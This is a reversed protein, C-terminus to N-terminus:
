SAEGRSVPPLGSAARHLMALSLADADARHLHPYDRLVAARIRGHEAMVAAYAAGRMRAAVALLSAETSDGLQFAPLMRAARFLMALWTADWGPADSLVLCGACEANLWSAVEEVDRGERMLRRRDIGHMETARTDWPSDSWSPPPLVLVERSTGDLRAIGVSV